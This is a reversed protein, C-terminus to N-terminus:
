CPRHSPWPDHRSMRGADAHERSGMFLLEVARLNASRNLLPVISKAASRWGRLVLGGLVLGRWGQGLGDDRRATVTRADSSSEDFIFRAPVRSAGVPGQFRRKM